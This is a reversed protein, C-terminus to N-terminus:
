KRKGKKLIIKYIRQHYTSILSIHDQMLQSWNQWRIFILLNGRFLRHNLPFGLYMQLFIYKHGMTHYQQVVIINARQKTKRINSYELSRNSLNVVIAVLAYYYSIWEVWWMICIIPHYCIAFQAFSSCCHSGYFRKDIFVIVLNPSLYWM